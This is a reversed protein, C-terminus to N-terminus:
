RVGPRPASPVVFGGGPVRVVPPLHEVACGAPDLRGSIRFVAAPGAQLVETAVPSRDTWLSEQPIPSPGIAAAPTIVVYRDGDRNVARRWAACSEIPRYAGHPGPEGLYDVRNSLEADYFVYQGFAAPPGVLGIKADHVDRAWGQLRRWEPTSRFGPNDAAPELAPRYRDRLYDRQAVFGTALVVAAVVTGAIALSARGTGGYWLYALAVPAAVLILVLVAGTPIQGLRWEPTTIANVVFIATLGATLAITSRGRRPWSLPLLTLGLALAPALYRLNTAFGSPHGPSGAASVPVFVYAIAAALGAAGLLRRVRCGSRIALILGALAAALVLPWLPGLSRALDPTFQHVWVDLDTAYDALSHAPRPYLPLQDPSALPGFSIWPLPNGGAVLNRAYWYGGTCLLGAFWAAAARPRRGRPALFPIGACLVVVPALLTIKTGIALGAALGAVFLAGTGVGPRSPDPEGQGHILIAAAALLFFVGATDSPANGAQVAMMGSDLVIAAAVVCAAGLGAKAGICWAALLALGMWVLNILVSLFDNGFALMGVAHLLESNMPYFWATLAMPDTFHLAWTDGSQFFAASTPLHYWVSDQRYIGFSLSDDIGGSWQLVSIAAVALSLAVAWAPLPPLSRGHTAIVPMRPRVVAILLLFAAVVGVLLGVPTFLGFSGILEAVCVVLSVSLVTEVLRAVIGDFTELLLKRVTIAAFAAVSFIVILYTFGVLFDTVTVNKRGFEGDGDLM